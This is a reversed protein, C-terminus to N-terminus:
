SSTENQCTTVSRLIRECLLFKKFRVTDFLFIKKEKLSYKYKKFTYLKQHLYRLM